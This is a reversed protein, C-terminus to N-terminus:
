SALILQWKAEAENPAHAVERVFGGIGAATSVRGCNAVSRWHVTRDRIDLRESLLAQPVTSRHQQLNWFSGETHEFFARYVSISHLLVRAPGPFNDDIRSRFQQAARLLQASSTDPTRM